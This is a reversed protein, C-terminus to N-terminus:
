VYNGILSSSVVAKQMTLRPFNHANRVYVQTIKGNLNPPMWDDFQIVLDIDPLRGKYAAWVDALLLKMHSQFEPYQRTEGVIFM